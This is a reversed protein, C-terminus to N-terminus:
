SLGLTSATWTLNTPPLGVTSGDVPNPNTVPAPAGSIASLPVSVLAHTAGNYLFVKQQDGSVALVTSTFPWAYVSQGNQTNFAHSTGMALDGHTTTSYIEEGFAALQKLNADFAYGKWFLR